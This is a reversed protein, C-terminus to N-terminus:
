NRAVFSVDLDTPVAPATFTFTLTDGCGFDDGDRYVNSTTSPGLGGIIQLDGEVRIAQLDDCDRSIVQAGGAPITLELENGIEELVDELINQDDDYLVRTEVPFATNNRLEVTTVQPGFPCAGLPLASAVVSAAFLPKMM